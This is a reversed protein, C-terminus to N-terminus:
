GGQNGRSHCAHLVHQFASEHAVAPGVSSRVTLRILRSCCIYLVQVQWSGEYYSGDQWFYLGEGQPMGTVWEGQYSDGNPFDRM